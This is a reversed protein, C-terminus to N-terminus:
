QAREEAAVWGKPRDEYLTWNRYPTRFDGHKQHRVAPFTPMLEINRMKCDKYVMGFLGCGIGLWVSVLYYKTFPGMLAGATFGGIAYNFVDDKERIHTACYTSICFASTAAFMPTMLKNYRILTELYGKPKSVLIIESTALGFGIISVKKNTYFLKKVLDHGDPTDYYTYNIISM